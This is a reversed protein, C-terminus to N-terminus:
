FVLAINLVYKMLIFPDPKQNHFVFLERSANRPILSADFTWNIYPSYFIDNLDPWDILIVRDTLMAM